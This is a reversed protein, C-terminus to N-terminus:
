EAAPAHADLRVVIEGLPAKLPDHDLKRLATTFPLYIEHETSSVSVGQVATPPATIAISDLPAPASFCASDSISRSPVRLTTTRPLCNLCSSSSSIRLFDIPRDCRSTSAIWSATGPTDNAAGFISMSGYLTM